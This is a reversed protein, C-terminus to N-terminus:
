ISESIFDSHSSYNNKVWEVYFGIVEDQNHENHTEHRLGAWIKLRATKCNGAFEESGNASTIADDSGHAILLPINIATANNIASIGKKYIENFLRVSVKDHNLPDNAYNQQVEEVSSIDEIKLGNPQQLSPYIQNMTRALILQIATPKIALKFWSSTVLACCFNGQDKELLYNIVINGGMSHGYLIKPGDINELKLYSLVSDICTYFDEMSNIHGRKGPSEGHGLLDTGIVSINESAFKEAVHNYRSIHEGLGHVLIVTALPNEAQWFLGALKDDDSDISIKNKIM